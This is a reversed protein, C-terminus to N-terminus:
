FGSHYNGLYWSHWLYRYCGCLYRRNIQHNRRRFRGSCYWNRYCPQQVPQRPRTDCGTNYVSAIGQVAAPVPNTISFAASTVATNEASTAFTLTYSGATSPNTVGATLVILVQANAGIYDGQPLTATITLNTANFSWVPATTLVAASFCSRKCRPFYGLRHQCGHYRHPSCRHFRRPLHHHHYRWHRRQISCHHYCHRCWSRYCRFNTVM